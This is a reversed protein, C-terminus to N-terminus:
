SFGTCDQLKFSNVAIYDSDNNTRHHVTYMPIYLYLYPYIYIYHTSYVNVIIHRSGSLIPIADMLRIVHYYIILPPPEDIIVSSM